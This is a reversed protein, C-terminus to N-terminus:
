GETFSAHFVYNLVDILAFLLSKPRFRAMISHFHVNSDITNCEFVGIM